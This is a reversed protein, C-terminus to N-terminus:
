SQRQRTNHEQKGSVICGKANLIEETLLRETDEIHIAQEKENHNQM